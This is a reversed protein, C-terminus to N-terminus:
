WSLRMLEMSERELRTELKVVGGEVDVWVPSTSLELGGV